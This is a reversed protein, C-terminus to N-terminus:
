NKNRVKKRRKKGFLNSKGKKTSLEGSRSTSAKYKETSECGEGVKCSSISICSMLALFLLLLYKKNM